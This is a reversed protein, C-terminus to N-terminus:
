NDLNNIIERWKKNEQPSLTAKDKVAVPAYKVTQEWMFQEEKQKSNDAMKQLYRVGLFGVLASLVFVTIGGIFPLLLILPMLRASEPLVM